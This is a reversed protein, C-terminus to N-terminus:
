DEDDDSIAHIASLAPKDEASALVELQRRVEALAGAMMLGQERLKTLNGELETARAELDAKSM